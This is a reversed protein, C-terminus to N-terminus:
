APTIELFKLLPARPAIHSLPPPRNTAMGMNKFIPAHHSLRITIYHIALMPLSRLLWITTLFNMMAIAHLVNSALDIRKSLCSQHLCKPTPQAGLIFLFKLLPPEAGSLGRPIVVPNM